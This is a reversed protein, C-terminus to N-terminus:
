PAPEMWVIGEDDRVVWTLSERCLHDFRPDRTALAVAPTEADCAPSATFCAGQVLSWAVRRSEDALVCAIQMSGEDLLIHRGEDEAPTDAPPHSERWLHGCLYGFCCGSVVMLLASVRPSM